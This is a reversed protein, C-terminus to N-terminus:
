MRYLSHRCLVVCCLMISRVKYNCTQIVSPAPCPSLPTGACSKIPYVYIARLYVPPAPPGSAAASTKHVMASSAGGALVSAAAGQRYGATDSDATDRQTHTDTGPARAPRPQDLFHRRLFALFRAAALRPFTMYGVSVRVAGRPRGVALDARSDQCSRGARLSELVAGASM